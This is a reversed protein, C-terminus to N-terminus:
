QAFTNKSANYAIYRTFNSDAPLAVTTLKGNEMIPVTALDFALVPNSYIGNIMLGFHCHSGTSYGTSGAKAIEQGKKVQDGSKVLLSSNHMYVTQVTEGKANSGHNIQVYNGASSSYQSIEVIGDAAAYIPTGEKCGIDVGKHYTSAGATPSIRPAFASTFTPNGSVDVPFLFDLDQISKSNGIPLGDITSAFSDGSEKKEELNSVFSDSWLAGDLNLSEESMTTGNIFSNTLLVMNQVEDTTLNRNYSEFTVDEELEDMAHYFEYFSKRDEDTMTGSSTIASGNITGNNNGTNSSNSGTNAGNPMAAEFSPIIHGFTKGKLYTYASMSQEQRKAVESRVSSSVDYDRPLAFREWGLAMAKAIESVDNSSDWTKDQDYAWQRPAYSYTNKTDLEMCAFLIQPIPDTWDYGIATAFNKLRTMRGQYWQCLGACGIENVVSLNFSSESAMNGLVAAAQIESFGFQLLGDWITEILEKKDGNYLQEFKNSGSGSGSGTTGSEGQVGFKAINVYLNTDGGSHMSLFTDYTRTIVPKYTSFNTLYDYLYDNGSDTTNCGTMNVFDSYIGSTSTDRYKYLKYSQVSTVPNGNEDTVVRYSPNNNVYDEAEQLTPFFLIGNGSIPSAGGTGNFSVKYQVIQKDEVLIKEVNDSENASEGSKIGETKVSTNTYNYTMSGAMSIAHDLVDYEKTSITIDYPENISRQKVSGSESDYYDEMIYTGKIHETMTEKKYKLVSAIGYDAVSKEKKGTEKGDKGKINSEVIINGNEDTLKQLQYTFPNYAVPNLFLEPFVNQDNFLYKNMCYLLNPDIYYDLDNKFYDVAADDAGALILEQEGTDTEKIQYVSKEKSLTEYYSLCAANSNSFKTVVTDGSESYGVTNSYDTYSKTEGANENSAFFGFSFVASILIFAILIVVLIQWPSLKSLLNLVLNAAKQAIKSLGNKTKKGAKRGAKGVFSASNNLWNNNQQESNESSNGFGGSNVVRDDKRKNYGTTKQRIDIYETDLQFRAFGYGSM